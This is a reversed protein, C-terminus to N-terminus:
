ASLLLFNYKIRAKAHLLAILLLYYLWAVYDLTRTPSFNFGIFLYKLTTSHEMGRSELRPWLSSLTPLLQHALLECFLSQTTWEQSLDTCIFSTFFHSAKYFHLFILNLFYFHTVNSRQIQCFGFRFYSYGLYPCHRALVHWQQLPRQRRRERMRDRDRLRLTWCSHLTTLPSVCEILTRSVGHGTKRDGGGRTDPREM